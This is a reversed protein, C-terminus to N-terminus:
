SDFALVGVDKRDGASVKSSIHGYYLKASVTVQSYRFSLCSVTVQSYSFSLSSSRASVLAVQGVSLLAVQGVCSLAALHAHVHALHAVIM